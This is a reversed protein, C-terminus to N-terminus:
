QILLKGTYDIERNKKIQFIYIGSPLGIRDILYDNHDITFLKLLVGNTSYIGLSLHSKIIDDIHLVSTESFPNPMFNYRKTKSMGDALGVWIPSYCVSDYSFYNITDNLEFCLLAPYGIDAIGLTSIGSYFLGMTSGVGEIWYEWATYPWGIEYLKRYTQNILISDISGIEINYEGRFPFLGIPCVTVTDGINLSFDYQLREKTSDKEIAWIRKLSDERVAAYYTAHNFSFITDGSTIYYAKYTNDNIITDGGISFKDTNM